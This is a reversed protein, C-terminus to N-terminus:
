ATEGFYKKLESYFERAMSVPWTAVVAPNYTPVMQVEPEQPTPTEVAKAPRKTKAEVPAKAVIRNKTRRPSDGTPYETQTAMYAFCRGIRQRTAAKREVFAGLASSVDSQPVGTAAAISVSTAGPTERLAIWVKERLLGFDGPAIRPRPAVAKKPKPTAQPEATAVILQAPANADDDFSLNDLSQIKALETQLTGM